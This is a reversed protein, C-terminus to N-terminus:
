ERVVIEKVENKVPELSVLYKYIAKLDNDSYTKFAEWPMISEKVGRGLRFRQIFQEATWGYMKGTERDQTLNPSYVWVGPEETASPTKGGGALQPGTFEGTIEDTKTHCYNCGSVSNSLYQGYAATTDRVVSKPIDKQIQFPKNFFMVSIGKILFGVEKEPVKNNVPEISRLYSVIATLDEDSVGSYAMFPFLLENNPKVCYRIIRALEADTYRGIGTEKDPTLNGSYIIGGPLTFELGGTLPKTLINTEWNAPDKRDSKVHCEACHAPGYVFYKGHAIVASDRSATIDVQPADYTPPYLSYVSIVVVLIFLGILLGSWKLIKFLTKM